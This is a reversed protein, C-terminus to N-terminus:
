TENEERIARDIAQQEERKERYYNKWFEEQQEDMHEQDRRAKAELEEPTPPRRKRPKTM